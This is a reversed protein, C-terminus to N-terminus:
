PTSATVMGVVGGQNKGLFFGGGGGPIFVAWVTRRRQTIPHIFDGVVVGRRSVRIRLQEAGPNSVTVVAGRHVSRDIVESLNGDKLILRFETPLLSEVHIGGKVNLNVEFGQPYWTSRINKPRSWFLEGTVEKAQDVLMFGAVIGRAVPRTFVRITGDEGIQSGQSLISGDPFRGTIKTRGFKSVWLLLMADGTPTDGQATDPLPTALLNYVGQQSAPNYLSFNGRRFFEIDGGGAGVIGGSLVGTDFLDFSLSLLLSSLGLRRLFIGEKDFAGKVKYVKGRFLVTATVAGTSSVAVNVYGDGHSILGMYVGKVPVFPEAPTLTVFSGDEAYSTGGANVAAFRYYYQRHPLLGTLSVAVPVEGTSGAPITVLSTVNSYANPDDGYEVWWSTEEEHPTVSGSLLASVTTVESSLGTVVDPSPVEEVALLATDSVTQGFPGCVKVRYSGAHGLQASDIQYVPGTAGEIDQENKQWQYSINFGTAIVSLSTTRGRRVTISDPDHRVVPKVSYVTLEPGAVEIPTSTRGDDNVWVKLYAQVKFDEDLKALAAMLREQDTTGPLADMNVSRGFDAISIEDVPARNPSFSGYLVEDGTNPVGDAGLYRGLIYPIRYTPQNALDHEGAFLGQPHTSRVGYVVDKLRFTPGHYAVAMVLLNGKQENYSNGTPTQDGPIPPRDLRIESEWLGTVQNSSILKYSDVGINGLLRVSQAGQEVDGGSYLSYTALTETAGFLWQNSGGENRYPLVTYAWTSWPTAGPSTSLMAMCLTAVVLIRQM